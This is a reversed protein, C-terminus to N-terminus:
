TSPNSPDSIHVILPDLMQLLLFIFWPFFILSVTKLRFMPQIHCFFYLRKM